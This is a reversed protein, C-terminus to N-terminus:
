ASVGLSSKVVVLRGAIHEGVLEKRALRAYITQRSVRLLAAAKPVSVYREPDTLKHHAKAANHKSM